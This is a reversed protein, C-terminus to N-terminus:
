EQKEWGGAENQRWYTLSHGGEQWAAWRGRAASVQAEDNGDFVDLCQGFDGVREPAVGDVLVLVSAGNPNEEKATLYVPQEAAFGDRASGHPLFSRQPRSWLAASLAEAREESGALVVARLGRELVKELLGSVARELSMRRLHYFRIDAM